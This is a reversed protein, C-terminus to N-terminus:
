CGISENCQLPRRSNSLYGGSAIGLARIVVAGAPVPVPSDERSLYRELMRRITRNASAREWGICGQAVIARNTLM